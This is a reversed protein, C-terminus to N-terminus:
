KRISKTTSNKISMHYPNTSPTHIPIPNTPDNKGFGEEVMRVM